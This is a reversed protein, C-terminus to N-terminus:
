VFDSGQIAYLGRLQIQYDALGDGTVDGAIITQGSAQYYRIQGAEGTFAASGIFVQNVHAESSIGTVDIKDIGQEFDTILDRQGGVASDALAGFVFMDADAGGAQVDRGLGGVLRDNGAGGIIRDNGADGYLTDAGGLGAIIDSGNGGHITNAVTSGTLQDNGGGSILDEIGSLTDNGAPGTAQAVTKSLNVVIKGNYGTYDATDRGSGGILTDDGLGGKLWDDGGKGDLMDSGAGGDLRNTEGNGTIRDGRSSGIVNEISILTDFGEGASISQPGTLGLDVTVAGTAAAYTVTDSGAGGDITDRGAGPAVMDDGDRLLAGDDGAGLTVDDAGTSALVVDIGSGGAIHQVEGPPALTAAVIVTAGRTAGDDAAIQLAYTGDAAYGGAAVVVGGAATYTQQDGDGWHVTASSATGVDVTLVLDRHALAAVNLQLARVDVNFNGALSGDDDASVSQYTVFHGNYSWVPYENDFSNQNGVSDTSLQTVHGTLVDKIFIDQTGNTDNPTLNSARSEFLIYRGDPSFSPYASSGNAVARDPGVDILDNAGTVLDKRHLHHDDFSLYVVSRGDPAIDAEVSASFGGSGGADISARTVIGTQLDKVYIDRQGNTDGTVFNTATSEFAVYRGDASASSFFHEGNAQTGNAKTSVRVIAGTDMDKRFVDYKGNTDGAVLNSSLSDFFVFRGDASIDTGSTYNNGGLGAATQDVRAISNDTLDRRFLGTANSFVEYRGSTSILRDDRVSIEQVANPDITWSSTTISGITM